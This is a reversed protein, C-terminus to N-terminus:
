GSLTLNVLAPPFLALWLVATIVLGVVVQLWLPDAAIIEDTELETKALLTALLRLVGAAGLGLGLLALAPLWWPISGSNALEAVATLLRWHGAFGLTFPLGLLSFLGLGLLAL